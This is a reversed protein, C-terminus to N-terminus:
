KFSAAQCVSHEDLLQCRNSPLSTIYQVHLLSSTVSTFILGGSRKPFTFIVGVCAHSAHDPSSYDNGGGGKGEEENM